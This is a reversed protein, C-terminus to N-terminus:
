GSFAPLCAQGTLLVDDIGDQVFLVGLVAFLALNVVFRGDGDDGDFGAAIRPQIGQLPTPTVLGLGYKDPLLVLLGRCARVNLLTTGDSEM